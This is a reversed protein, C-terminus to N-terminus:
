RAQRFETRVGHLIRVEQLDSRAVLGKGETKMNDGNITVGNQTSLEKKGNDWCLDKACIRYGNNSTVTVDNNKRTLRVDKSNTDFVGEDALLNLVMGNRGNFVAQLEQLKAKGTDKGVEAKKASLEWSVKETESKAFHFGDIVVEAQDTKLEKAPAVPRKMGPSDVLYIVSAAVM